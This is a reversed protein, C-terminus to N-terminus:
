QRGSETFNKFQKVIGVEKLMIGRLMTMFASLRSVPTTDSTTKLTNRVRDHGIVLDDEEHTHSNEQLIQINPNRDDLDFVKTQLNARYEKWWCRWYIARTRLRNKQYKLRNYLLVKGARNGVTISAAMEFKNYLFPALSM